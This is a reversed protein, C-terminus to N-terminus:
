MEDSSVVSYLVRCFSNYCPAHTKALPFKTVNRTIHTYYKQQLAFACEDSGQSVKEGYYPHDFTPHKRSLNVCAETFIGRFDKSDISSFLYIM